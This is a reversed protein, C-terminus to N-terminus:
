LKSRIVSKTQSIKKELGQLELASLSHIIMLNKKKLFLLFPEKPYGKRQNIERPGQIECGFLLRDTDTHM